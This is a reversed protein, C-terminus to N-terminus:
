GTTGILTHYGNRETGNRETGNRETGNRETLVIGSDMLSTLYKRAGQVCESVEKSILPFGYKECVEMFSVNPRLVWVGDWTLAFEKLEPYQTPVDVFLAPIDKYGLRNRVIDMLVTSDKGGSFSIAVGSTGYYDIWDMIRRETMRIKASLPLAQMQYLDSITHKNEAM